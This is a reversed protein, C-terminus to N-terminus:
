YVLTTHKKNTKKKAARPACRDPIDRGTPIASYGWQIKFISSHAKQHKEFQM